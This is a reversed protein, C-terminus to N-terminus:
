PRTIDETGWDRERAARAKAVADNWIPGFEDSSVAVSIGARKAADYARGFAANLRSCVDGYEAELRAAEALLGAFAEDDPM